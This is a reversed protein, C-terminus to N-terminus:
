KKTQEIVKDWRDYFCEVSLNELAFKKVKNSLKVYDNTNINKLYEIKETM